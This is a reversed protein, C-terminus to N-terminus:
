QFLVCVRVRKNESPISINNLVLLTLYKESSGRECRQLFSLLTPVLNVNRSSHVMESRNETHGHESLAFLSRLASAPEHSSTEEACQLDEIFQPVMELTPEKIENSKQRKLTTKHNNNPQQKTTAPSYNSSASQIPFTSPAASTDVDVIDESPKKTIEPFKSKNRSKRFFGM